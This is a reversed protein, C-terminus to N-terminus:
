RPSCACGGLQEAAVGVVEGCREGLQGLCARRGELPAGGNEVTLDDSEIPVGARVKVQLTPSQVGIAAKSLYTKPWVAVAAAGAAVCLAVPVIFWFKRRNVVALYDLPHFSQPEM